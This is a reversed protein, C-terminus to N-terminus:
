RLAGAARLAARKDESLWWTDEGRTFRPKVAPQEFVDWYALWHAAKHWNPVWIHRARLVRDLARAATVMEARDRAGIVRDILADVVPDALGSLNFSGPADAARSGYINRLEVSPTNGVVLRAITMDYDFDQQRQQMQAADIQMWTADIGARRLNEIYPLVIRAFAPSDSIFELTLVTGAADRRMGDAGVQWGAADLLAGARRLAGRDALTAGSVQPVVAPETFITEPLRDRFAELLALEAGEPLGEAQMDTNEFFSDTRTYLGHFLQENSWEFNFLMAIAERTRPDAFKERRLNMWFGQTGSPRADPIVEQVVWGRDLAPFDYGTAWIASTFEEHFLYEASKLAEFAATNDAFYEYVVCDFNDKGVNVPLDAGWYDPDRCYTIARGPDADEVVYPGSGLPPEMTSRAFDRTAYYHAPLIPIQAIEGPLDRTMAGERFDVRIRHPDLIQTRAIDELTLRYAPLGDEALREFTFAVDAATVPTGDSFRAEPRLHFIVFARDPPLEIREVLLGYIADPEDWARAMLTDYLRTLGQAPEGALIFANLSDFTRSAGTGRFSITGGRPADPNVYDFHAFDPPYKLDGFTSFGHSLTTEAGAPPAAAITVALTAAAWLGTALNTRRM